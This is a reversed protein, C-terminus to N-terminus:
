VTLNQNVMFEMQLIYRETCFYDNSYNARLLTKVELIRPCLEADEECRPIWLKRRASSNQLRETYIFNM